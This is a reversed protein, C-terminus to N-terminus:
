AIEGLDRLVNALQVRSQVGLKAYISRLHTGVTNISIGLSKATSKNTHGSAILYAVRREAETLSVKEVETHENVWKARRAGADRMLRQVRARPASAGMRDYIDWAVDLHGLAAEREGAALLLRGYGEAGAARLIPRPSHQLIQVSEAVMGLDRNLVGRLNLALGNLTAVDPNRRAGEEAFEVTRETINTAGTILGISFLVTAYCPWWAWFSRMRQSTELLESLIRRGGDVDGQQTSLWGLLLSLGPHHIADGDALRVVPRLRQAALESEGRLLAVTTRMLIGEVVHVTTGTVQGLEILLAATQDAERLRGLNYHQKLQAFLLDPLLSGAKADSHDTVCDLLMQADDYRDLLQLEMIEESLYPVGTVSRLERFYKL